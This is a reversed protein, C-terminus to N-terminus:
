RWQAAGGLRIEVQEADSQTVFAPDPAESGGLGTAARVAACAMALRHRIPGLAGPTSPAVGHPTGGIVIEAFTAGARTHFSALAESFGRPTLSSAPTHNMPSIQRNTPTTLAGHVDEPLRAYGFSGRSVPGRSLPALSGLSTLYRSPPSVSGGVAQAAQPRVPTSFGSISSPSPSRCIPTKDKEDFSAGTTGLGGKRVKWGRALAAERQAGGEQQPYADAPRRLFIFVLLLTVSVLLFPTWADLADLLTAHNGVAPALCCAGHGQEAAPRDIRSLQFSDLSVAGVNSSASHHTVGVRVDGAFSDALVPLGLARWEEQVSMRWWARMGGGASRSLRLWPAGAAPQEAQQSALPAGGEAAQLTIVRSQASFLGLWAPGGGINAGSESKVPTVMLGGASWQVDASQQVRVTASFATGRPITQYLFPADNRAPSAHCGSSALEIRGDLSQRAVETFCGGVGQSLATGDWVAACAGSTGADDGLWDCWGGPLHSVTLEAHLQTGPGGYESPVAAVQLLEGAEVVRRFTLVTAGAGCDCHGHEFGDTCAGLSIADVTECTEAPPLASPDWASEGVLLHKKSVEGQGPWSVTVSGTIIGPSRARLFGQPGVELQATSLNTAPVLWRYSTSPDPADASWRLPVAEGVPRLATSWM